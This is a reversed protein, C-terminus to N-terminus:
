GLAWSDGPDIHKTLTAFPGHQQSWYFLVKCMRLIKEKPALRIQFYDFDKENFRYEADAFDTLYPAEKSEAKLYASFGNLVTSHYALLAAIFEKKCKNESDLGESALIFNGYEATAREYFKLQTDKFSWNVASKTVSNDEYDAM